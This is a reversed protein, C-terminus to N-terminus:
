IRGRDSPFGVQDPLPHTTVLILVQGTVPPYLHDSHLSFSILQALSKSCPQQYKYIVNYKYITISTILHVPIKICITIYLENVLFPNFPNLIENKSFNNFKTGSLYGVQMGYLLVVSTICILKNM